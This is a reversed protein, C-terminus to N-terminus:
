AQELAPTRGLLNASLAIVVWVTSRLTMAIVTRMEYAEGKLIHVGLAAFVMLTALAVLAALPAAWDKRLWLGAGTIIYFFGAIFNFWLVFPVYNGAAARDPGDVFLVAGGSKLTLLGFAVALLSLVWVWVPRKNKVM